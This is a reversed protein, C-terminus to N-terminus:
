VTLQNDKRTCGFFFVSNLASGHHAYPNDEWFGHLGGLWVTM